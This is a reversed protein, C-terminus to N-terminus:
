LVAEACKVVARAAARGCGVMQVKLGARGIHQRQFALQPMKQVLRFGGPVEGRKVVTTDAQATSGGGSFEKLMQAAHRSVEVEAGIWIIFCIEIYDDEAAVPFYRGRNQWPTRMAGGTKKVGTIILAYDAGASNVYAAKRDQWSLLIKFAHCSFSHQRNVPLDAHRGIAHLVEFHLCVLYMGQNIRGVVLVVKKLLSCFTWGYM